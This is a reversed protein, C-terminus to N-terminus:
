EVLVETVHREMVAKKVRMDGEVESIELWVTASYREFQDPVSSPLWGKLEARWELRRDSWGWDMSIQPKERRQRIDLFSMGPGRITEVFTGRDVGVPVCNSRLRFARVGYTEALYNLLWRIGIETARRERQRGTQLANWSESLGRREFAPRFLDMATPSLERIAVDAETPAMWWGIRELMWFQDFMETTWPPPGLMALIRAEDLPPVSSEESRQRADWVTALFLLKVWDVYKQDPTKILFGDHEMVSWVDVHTWGNERALPRPYILWCAPASIGM